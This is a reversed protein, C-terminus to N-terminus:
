FWCGLGGHGCGSSDARQGVWLAMGAQDPELQTPERNLNVLEFGGIRFELGDGHKYDSECIFFHVRSVKDLEPQGDISM